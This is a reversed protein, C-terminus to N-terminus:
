KGVTAQSAKERHKLGGSLQTHLYSEITIEPRSTPLAIQHAGARHEQLRELADVNRQRIILIFRGQPVIGTRLRRDPGRCQQFQRSSHGWCRTPRPRRGCRIREPMVQVQGGLLDTLAPGASRYSFWTSAPWSKKFLEGALHNGSGIGSSAFSIRGPNAKAYAIFQPVTNAPVSPNVVM